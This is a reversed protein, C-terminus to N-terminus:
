PYPDPTKKLKQNLLFIAELSTCPWCLDASFMGLDVSFYLLWITMVSHTNRILPSLTEPLPQLLLQEWCLCQTHLLQAM